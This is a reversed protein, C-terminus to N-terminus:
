TTSAPKKTKHRTGIKSPVHMSVEMGWDRMVVRFKFDNSDHYQDSDNMEYVNCSNLFGVQHSSPM